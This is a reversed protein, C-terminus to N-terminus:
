SFHRGCVRPTKSSSLSGLTSAWQTDNFQNPPLIVVENHLMSPFHGNLMEYAFEPKTAPRQLYGKFNMSPMHDEEEL